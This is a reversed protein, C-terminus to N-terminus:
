NKTQRNLKLIETFGKQFTEELLLKEDKRIKKLAFTMVKAKNEPSRSGLRLRWYAKTKLTNNISIVGKHGADNKGWSLKYSGLSLDSDDQIIVLSNTDIKLYRLLLPLNEGSENMYGLRKALLVLPSSESSSDIPFKTLLFKDRCVSQWNNSKLGNTKFLWDLFLWGLNHYTNQYKLDKNGLGYCLWIQQTM